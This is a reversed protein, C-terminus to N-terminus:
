RTRSWPLTAEVAFAFRATILASEADRIAAEIRDSPQCLPFPAGCEIARRLLLHTLIRKLQM